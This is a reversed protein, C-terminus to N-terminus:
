FLRLGVLLYRYVLVPVLLRSLSLSLSLHRSTGYSDYTALRRTRYRYLVLVPALLRSLSLSLSKLWTRIVPAVHWTECSLDLQCAYARGYCLDERQSLAAVKIATWDVPLKLISPPATDLVAYVASPAYVKSVVSVYPSPIQQWYPAPRNSAVTFPSGTAM